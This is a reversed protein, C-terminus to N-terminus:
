HSFYAIKGDVEVALTSETAHLRMTGGKMQIVASDPDVLIGQNTKIAAGDATPHSVCVQDGVVTIDLTTRTEPNVWHGALSSTPAASASSISLVLLLLSVAFRRM